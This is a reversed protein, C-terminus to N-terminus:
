QVIPLVTPRVRRCALSEAPCPQGCNPTHHQHRACTRAVPRYVTSTTSHRIGALGGAACLLDSLQECLDWVVSVVGDVVPCLRVRQKYSLIQVAAKYLLKTSIPASIINACHIDAQTGM